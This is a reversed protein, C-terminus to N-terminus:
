LKKGKGGGTWQGEEKEKRISGKELVIKRKGPAANSKGAKKQRRRKNKEVAALHMEFESSDRKKEKRQIKKRRYSKRVSGRHWRLYCLSSVRELTKGAKKAGIEVTRKEGESSAGGKTGKKKEEV